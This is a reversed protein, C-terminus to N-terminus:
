IYVSNLTCHMCKARNSEEMVAMLVKTREQSYSQNLDLGEKNETIEKQRGHKIAAAYDHDLAAHTKLNFSYM